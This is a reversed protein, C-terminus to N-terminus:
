DLRLNGGKKSVEAPDVNSDKTDTFSVLITSVSRWGAIEENVGKWLPYLFGM